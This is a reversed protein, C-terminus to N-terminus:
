MAGVGSAEPSYVADAVMVPETGCVGADVLDPMGEGLLVGGGVPAAEWVPAAVCVADTVGTRGLKNQNNKHPKSDSKEVEVKCVSEAGAAGGDGVDLAVSPKGVAERCTSMMTPPMPALRM